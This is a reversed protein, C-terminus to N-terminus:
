RQYRYSNSAMDLTDMLLSALFLFHIAREPGIDIVLHAKPNRIGTMAGAFIEMYGQQISKGTETSIDDITIIPNKVSFATKMLASGDLENGTRRKVEEKVVNNIHKFATEACDAYHGSEFRTRTVNVISPHILSWFEMEQKGPVKEEYLPLRKIIDELAYHKYTIRGGAYNLKEMLTATSKQYMGAASFENALEPSDFMSLLLDKTQAEWSDTKGIAAEVAEDSLEHNSVANGRHIQNRLLAEAEARSMLLRPINTM